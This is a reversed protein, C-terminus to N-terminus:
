AAKAQLGLHREIGRVIAEPPQDVNITYVDKPDQLTDLQSRLLVPNFFHGHREALRRQILEFDGHLYILEVRDKGLLEARDLATLASCAIVGPQGAALLEDIKAHLAALWPARDEETLPVGAHMKAINAAPHFDDGDFFPWGLDKALMQGITTKGSGSVGMLVIVTM